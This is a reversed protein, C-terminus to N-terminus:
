GGISSKAARCLGEIVALPGLKLLDIGLEVFLLSSGFRAQLVVIHHQALEAVGECM